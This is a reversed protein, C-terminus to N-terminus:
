LFDIPDKDFNKFNYKFVNTCLKFNNKFFDDKLCKRLLSDSTIIIGHIDLGTPQLHFFGIKNMKKILKKFIILQMYIYHNRSTEILEQNPTAFIVAKKAGMCMKEFIEEPNNLHELCHSNFIFDANFDFTDADIYKINLESVDVGNKEVLLKRCSNLSYLFHGKGGGYDAVVDAPEILSNLFNFYNKDFNIDEHPPSLRQSGFGPSATIDNKFPGDDYKISFRFEPNEMIKRMDHLLEKGETAKMDYGAKNNFYLCNINEGSCSKRIIRCFQDENYRVLTMDDSIQKQFM